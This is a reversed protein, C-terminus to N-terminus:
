STTGKERMVISFAWGMGAAAPIVVYSLLSMIYGAVVAPVADSYRARDFTEERWGVYFGRLPERLRREGGRVGGALVWPLRRL